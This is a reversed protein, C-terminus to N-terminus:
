QRPDGRSGNVEVSWVLAAREEETMGSTLPINNSEDGNPLNPNTQTLPLDNDQGIKVPDSGPGGTRIYGTNQAQRFATSVEDNMIRVLSLIQEFKGNAFKNNVTLIKYQGTFLSPASKPSPYSLGQNDIDIDLDVPTNITVRVIVEHRDMPIHGYSRSYDASSLSWDNYNTGAVSDPVYLWDDQKILTPDGVITLQLALMEQHQATYISKLVDGTAQAAPRELQNFGSTSNVDNVLFRYQIPTITPIAGLQPHIKAFIAPNLSVPGGRAYTDADFETDRSSEDAAKASTFALVATYYTSDFNIKLDVIDQNQGTYLYNYNKVTYPLSDTYLSRAVPHKVTWMAYQQINYTIIKPYRNSIIDIAPGQRQGGADIGGYEMKTQTKFANFIATQDLGAVNSDSGAELKLQEQILFGSHAMVKTIIDLYPTGKPITFTSKNLQIDKVKPNAKSLSIKNENVIKSASIQEDIKFFYGDGLTAKRQAIKVAQFNFLQKELERFFEGVTSATINYIEQTTSTEVNQLVQGGCPVFDIKYETGRNGTVEVKMTLLKIPFRKVMVALNDDDRSIENGDDDYGRFELQLMYPNDTYNNYTTGDFSAAVLTDILTVGIPELITMAGCIMNSSKATRNPAIVTDFQVTQIHYNLGLTGPQRRDPFVGGDQAIVFSKSSPKWTMADTVDMSDMLRYFDSVNLWWLSWSYTYSAYQHLPNPILETITPLKVAM